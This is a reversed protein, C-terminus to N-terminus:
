SELHELEGLAQSLSKHTPKCLSAPHHVGILTTRDPLYLLFCSLQMGLSSLLRYAM